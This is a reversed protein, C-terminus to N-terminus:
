KHWFPPYKKYTLHKMVELLVSEQYARLKGETNEENTVIRGFDGLMKLTDYHLLFLKIYLERVEDYYQLSRDYFLRNCVNQSNSTQKIYRLCRKMLSPVLFRDACKYMEYADVPNPYGQPHEINDPKMGFNFNVCDTHIFYLLNYMIDFQVDDIYIIPRELQDKSPRSKRDLEITPQSDSRNSSQSSISSDSERRQSMSFIKGKVEQTIGEKAGATLDVSNQDWRGSFEVNHSLFIPWVQLLISAKKLSFTRARTYKTARNKMQLAERATM